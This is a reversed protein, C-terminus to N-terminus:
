IDEKQFNLDLIMVSDIDSAQPCIHGKRRDPGIRDSVGTRNEMRSKEEGTIKKEKKDVSCNENQFVYYRIIKFLVSM